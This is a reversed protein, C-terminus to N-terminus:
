ARPPSRRPWRVPRWSAATERAAARAHLGVPDGRRPPHGHGDRADDPAQAYGGLLSLLEERAGLDLSAAPEDLLLLEPDTMVSAPSRCASRSATALPTGFTRDALHDLRWEALVRQARREDIDEYEENWRGICRTRPPSCSTSCPRTRAPDRQAMATSAFGIRPRLEFVDTRGLQEGLITSRARVDPAHLTDALQLLTTKGAGNPGLISGASTTARGDLRPSRRHRPADRVSSSMPSSSCRRCATWGIPASARRGGRVLAPTDPTRSAIQGASTADDARERGAAGMRRARAGPRSVVETLVRPSTPSSGDPDLPTGTGDQVQEIPVLRGTVGDVVVEPIGGTATGVVAAGCAMAELNVIGLPEYVSPCVFTTAATLM